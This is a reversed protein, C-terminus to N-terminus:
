VANSDPQNVIETHLLIWRYSTCSPRCRIAGVREPESIALATVANDPDDLQRRIRAADTDHGQEAADANPETRGGGHPRCRAPQLRPFTPNTDKAAYGISMSTRSCIGQDHSRTPPRQDAARSFAPLNTRLATLVRDLVTAFTALNARAAAPDNQQIAPRLPESHRNLAIVSLLGRPRLPARATTLGATIDNTDYLPNHRLVLDYGGHLIDRGSRKIDAGVCTGRDALRAETARQATPANRWL